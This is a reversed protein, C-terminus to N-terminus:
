AAGRDLDRGTWKRPADSVKQLITYSIIVLVLLTLIGIGQGVQPQLELMTITLFTVGAWILPGTIASFRGVMGYLGYFEGIRAPPTLRLMYPRDAAWVGGLSLGALCAVIYLAWLPLTAIGVLAALLFVGMWARLVWNLTHKPGWRDTLAGWLFGGVVAFSIAVMMVIAAQDESAADTMGNAVAVNTTYLVMIIIVTNIADTYFVRGILFRLLGPYQQSSRLTRITERTSERVMSLNIPQPDPNGRERVFLFCPVAFALFLLAVATFQNPLGGIVFSLGVALFSGLYGVGIGIGGIRGRNEETSVEPLLADYFQLGAQYAINAIVFCIVAITFPSRALVLTFGVCALTSVILFPMRRRARDTMAGLLPSLLFIIAMSLATVLGYVTNDRAPGTVNRIFLPFYLSIVGMSFITNALDYLVWSAVARRPIHREGSLAVEAATSAVQNEFTSM